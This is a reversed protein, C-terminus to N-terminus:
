EGGIIILLKEVIKRFESVNHVPLECIFVNSGVPAELYQGVSILCEINRVRRLESPSILEKV